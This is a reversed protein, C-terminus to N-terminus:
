LSAMLQSRLWLAISLTGHKKAKKLVSWGSNHVSKHCGKCLTIINDLTDPGGQDLPIIHHGQVRWDFGCIACRKGDRERAAEQLPIDIPSTRPGPILLRRIGEEEFYPTRPFSPKYLPELKAEQIYRYVTARSKGLIKAAEHLTIYRQTNM